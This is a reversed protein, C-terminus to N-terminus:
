LTSRSFDKVGPARWSKRRLAGYARLRTPALPHPAVMAGSRLSPTARNRRRKQTPQPTIARPQLTTARYKCRNRTQHNCRPQPAGKAVMTKVPDVM